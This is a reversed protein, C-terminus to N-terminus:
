DNTTQNNWCIMFGNRTFNDEKVITWKNPNSRIEEVIKKCKDVKIDDLLLLRCRDKLLQFEFYTTFEGGDLLIVDFVNPINQRELFVNCCQMNLVDVENWKKFLANTKLQPFIDYLKDPTKDFIVENLIYVKPDSKYLEKADKWKDKNCELSYFSYNDTRNRLEEIFQKTSGLGNWTGIELFTTYKPNKAINRIENSFLDNCIQGLGNCKHAQYNSNDKEEWMINQDVKKM